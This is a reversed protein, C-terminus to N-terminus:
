GARDQEPGQWPDLHTMVNLVRHRQLVRQRAEVSILHAAEFSISADV